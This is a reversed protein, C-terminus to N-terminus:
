YLVDVDNLHCRDRENREETFVAELNCEGCEAVNSTKGEDRFGEKVNGSCKELPEFQYPRVSM